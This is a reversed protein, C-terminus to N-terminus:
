AVWFYEWCNPNTERKEEKRKEVAKEGDSHKNGGKRV